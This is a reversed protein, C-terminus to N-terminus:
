NVKFRIYHSSTLEIEEFDDGYGKCIIPTFDSNFGIEKHEFGDNALGMRIHLPKGFVDGNLEYENEFKFYGQKDEAQKANVRGFLEQVEDEPLSALKSFLDELGEKAAQVADVKKQRSKAEGLLDKLEDEPLTSLIDFFEALPDVQKKRGRVKSIDTSNVYWGCGEPIGSDTPGRHGSVHKDFQVLLSDVEVITAKAGIALKSPACDPATPNYVVRDGKKFTKM